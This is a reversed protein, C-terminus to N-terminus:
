PDQDNSNEQSSKRLKPQNRFLDEGVRMATYLTQKGLREKIKPDTPEFELRVRVASPLINKYESKETDWSTEWDQKKPHYYELEFRQVNPILSFQKFQEPNERDAFSVARPSEARVLANDVIQYTVFHHENERANQYTRQHTSTSFFLSNGTGQFIHITEPKPPPPPADPNNPDPKKPNWGLDEARLFITQELDRQLLGLLARTEQLFATREDINEKMDVTQRMSIFVTYVLFFLIISVMLVELLTFGRNHGALRKVRPASM